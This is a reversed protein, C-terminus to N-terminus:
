RSNKRKRSIIFAAGAASLIMMGIFLAIPTSDGTQVTHQDRTATAIEAIRTKLKGEEITEEMVKGVTVTYGEPVKTIKIKYTGIKATFRGNEQKSLETIMGEDDTTFTHITGDPYEIEVTAGPVPKKTKEDIVKIELGGTRPAIKAELETLKSVVVEADQEEGVTVRYGEPVETVKYTYKGPEATYNGFEDKQAYETVQGNEDTVYEHQTGDPETVVVKAGPVVEGTIEDYVTIIIGGRDTAIVAEHHGEDDKPVVVVSEEGTKVEYGEPVEKVTVTYEGPPVILENGNEDKVEGKEDTKYTKTTGDPYKVEVIADPVDLGSKEETVHVTLKGTEDPVPAIKAELETLQGTVVTGTQEEGVTVHYGTPVKTVKYTYDGTEATYNGFTDKKAYDTVQGNEDTTYTKTTGDPETVVVTANPVPLDTEEDLVTIIIGGRDTSIVAEHHGEDNKPVTVTGTEGTTVDYGKPVDTVTVEYNGPLVELEKGNEDKVEGKEDTKYTKTTGDPYKIEVTADPVDLGSKEETVHVTLKGSPYENDFAVETNGGKTVTAQAENGATEAGGSVTYTVEVAAKSVENYNKETITYGGVVVPLTLTYEGNEETFDSLKYNTTVKTAESYVDFSLTRKDAEVVPGGFTKKIM